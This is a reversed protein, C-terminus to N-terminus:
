RTSSRSSAVLAGIGVGSLGIATTAFAPAARLQRAFFQLDQILHEFLPAVWVARADERARVENGMIGAWSAPTRFVM